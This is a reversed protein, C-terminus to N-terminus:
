FCCAGLQMEMQTKGKFGVTQRGGPACQSRTTTISPTEQGGRDKEFERIAIFSQSSGTDILLRVSHGNIKSEIYLGRLKTAKQHKWRGCM